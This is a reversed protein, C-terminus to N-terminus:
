KKTPAYWGAGKPGNANFVYGAPVNAPRKPEETPEETKNLDPNIAGATRQIGRIAAVLADPNNPIGGLISVFQRLADQGRFGHMSPQLAAFTAIQARLGATAPDSWPTGLVASKIIAEPNGMLKKNSQVSSILDDGARMVAGAQAAEHGYANSASMGLPKDYTQTKSNWQYEIPKGNPGIFTATKTPLIMQGYNPPAIGLDRTFNGESDAGMVHPQGGHMVTIHQPTTPKEYPQPNGIPNEHADYYTGSQPDFTAAIPKGDAGALFVHQRPGPKVYPRLTGGSPSQIPTAELTRPNVGVYGQDTPEIVPNPNERQAIESQLNQAQVGETRTQAQRAENETDQAIQRQDGHIDALHHLSTGPTAIDIQPAVARLGIDGLQALGQAGIGLVKGLLPHAQGLKTGEIKGAIQSIGSGTRLKRSLEAEDGASTGRPPIIQPTQTPPLLPAPASPMTITQSPEIGPNQSAFKARLGAPPMVAGQPQAPQQMKAALAAKLAPNDLIPNGTTAM